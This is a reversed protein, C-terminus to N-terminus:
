SLTVAEGSAASEAAAELVRVVECVSECTVAPEERGLVAAAVNEYYSRWRGPVPEVETQRTEGGCDRFLSAGNGASPRAADIDGAKM